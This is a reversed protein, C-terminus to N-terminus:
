IFPMEILLWIKYRDIINTQKNFISCRLSQFTWHAHRNQQSVTMQRCASLSRESWYKSLFFNRNPFFSPDVRFLKLDTLISFRYYFYTDTMLRCLLVRSLTQDSQCRRDVAYCFLSVFRMQRRPYSHLIIGHLLEFIWYFHISYM